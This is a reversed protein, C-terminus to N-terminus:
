LLAAVGAAPKFVVTTLQRTPQLLKFTTSLQMLGTDTNKRAINFKRRSLTHFM